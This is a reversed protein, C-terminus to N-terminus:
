EHNGHEPGYGDGAASLIAWVQTDSTQSFDGYWQGIAFFDEPVHVADLEDAVASLRALSLAPAVPAALVVRSAGRARAITCAAAATSGTAIGDDVVVVCRGALPIPRRGQRAAEAARRELERRERDEVEALAQARVRAAQRVEENMVRVGGEGIAGVALEPQDPVGLKRVLIVDLPAGLARAVEAAVPVGGRPLGLVVPRLAQLHGLRAALQRGADARNAFRRGPRGPPPM